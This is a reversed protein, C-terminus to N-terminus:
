IEASIQKATKDKTPRQWEVSYQIKKNLTLKSSPANHMLTTGAALTAQKEITIPAILQCGAGVLVQDEIVTIHKNVGDYNCTITGAGINVQNGIIADGVYSLHNIKSNEGITAAKIEVFNGIKTNCGINTNPRIRAFPGIISRANVIAGEIVSHPQVIVDAGILTDKIYCNAGIKAGSEIVVKGVLIVNIDIEVDKSIQVEGRVDFRHPDIITVGQEILDMAQQVQYARELEILQRRTNVSLNELPNDLSITCISINEKIALEFIDTLYYEQQTNNHNIQPLLQMLVQQPFLYIGVNIETIKKQMLSADAEDIIQLFNNNKDRIIRGLGTPEIVNGTVIGIAQPATNSILKNLTNSTILPIDGSLVIINTIDKNIAALGVAVADATGMPVSQHAWSIKDMMNEQHFIMSSCAQKLANLDSGGVVVVQKIMALGLAANLSRFLIPIGALKHLVKPINSTMRKGNGAALIIIGYSMLVM